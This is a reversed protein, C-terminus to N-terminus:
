GRDRPSPSTYLLCPYPFSLVGSRNLTYGGVPDEDSAIRHWGIRGRGADELMEWTVSVGSPLYTEGRCQFLFAHRAGEPLPEDLQMYLAHHGQGSGDPELDVFPDFPHHETLRGGVRAIARSLRRNQARYEVAMTRLGPMPQEYTTKALNGDVGLKVGFVKISVPVPPTNKDVQHTLAARTLEFRLWTTERIGM